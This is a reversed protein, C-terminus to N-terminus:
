AASTQQQFNGFGGGNPDLVAAFTLALEAPSGLKYVPAPNSSQYVCPVYYQANYMNNVGSIGRALLAYAAVNIGQFLPVDSEGAVGTGSMAITTVAADNLALAYTAPSIDALTVAIEFQEATRWAKNPATSGLPTWTTITQNHTVTVGTADYDDNGNAGVLTWGASALQTPTAQIPPAAQGLPAIYLTLPAAVIEQPTATQLTM